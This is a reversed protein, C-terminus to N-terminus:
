AIRGAPPVAKHRWFLSVTTVLCPGGYFADPLARFLQLETEELPGLGVTVAAPWSGPARCSPPARTSSEGREIPFEAGGTM